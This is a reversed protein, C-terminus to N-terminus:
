QVDIRQVGWYGSSLYMSNGQRKISDTWWGRTRVSKDFAPPATDSLRYVDLGVEGWGSTVVARDGEVDLLWGWQANPTTAVRDVPAKPNTLDVQHFEMFPQQTSGAPLAWDYEQATMYAKDNQVIVNGVWGDIATVSQLYAKDGSIQCVAIDNRPNNSDYRYDTFYLISPDESSAGVLVGPVNIKHGIRPHARDSLDVQDLYYRVYGTVGGVHQPDPREVWEYHTTYLTSGVAKMNGWWGTPDNTITVSAVSPANPNSLDVVFLADLSDVYQYGGNTYAYQPFWRRFALTDGNVQVANAGDFWDYYWFGYWGWGGYSYPLNPLTVNGLLKAGGNSTDVVQIQQTWQTCGGGTNPKGPVAGPCDGVTSVDTVVYSLDGNRYVDADTGAIPVSVGTGNDTTEEANAIPLVRMESQTADYGWWDTSVEAITDGQPYANVVNRALTLENVVAPTNPNSYDIVSLALDSLSVLRNKVFIGREVWGKTHAAGGTTLSTNTFELLQVGNEYHQGTSDWGSFPVVALGQTTDVTFAKFTDAAPTWAWGQGFSSTGLVTPKTADTADVYQVAVQRGTDAGTQPAGGDGIAFVRSGNPIFMWINGKLSTSGALKPTAPVSLDYISLPTTANSNSWYNDSPSLYMRGSDFRAAASWGLVAISLESSLVPADPNTFDVTSLTYADNSASGCYTTACGLSHAHANDQFDINWRGNDPGWGSAVGHVNLAGRLKIAGAPDTIDVYQLVTESPPAKTPDTSSPQHGLMIAYPTVNFIGGAGDFSMEQVKKVQGGTFSVSAIAVKSGDGAFGGGVGVPASAGGSVAVGPAAVGGGAYMYPGGWYYGYSWGYDQAVTYLVDGVVRTDRVWGALQAEGVVQINTPDNCDYGRVVSGHFPTGDLLSGYWDGVVVVAVGNRVLMEQPDGFIPARGVLKPHDVDSVDFVM